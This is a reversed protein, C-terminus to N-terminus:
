ARELLFKRLKMIAKGRHSIENKEQATMQAFSRDFGEPVFIPDYGFGEKGLKHQAIHGRVIGEFTYEQGEILLVIATRFQAGRDTKGKLKTLVKKMNADDNKSMGAYRASLVGPKGALADIELGTDDSFCSLGYQHWIAHAKLRANGELTPESEVVEEFNELDQLGIVEYQPELLERVERLKGPNQTAFVLKM